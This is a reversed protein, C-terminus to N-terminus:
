DLKKLQELIAANNLPNYRGDEFLVTQGERSLLYRLFERTMPDIPEGPVRNFAAPIIRTLPYSRSILTAKSAEVFPGGDNESLALSKVNANASRQNAVAIGYPDDALAQLIQLDSDYITGDPRKIHAYEHMANNFRHSGKFITDSLFFWFDNDFSWGYLHIPKDAWEGTLGLDGWVRFNKPAGRLHESGFIADIQKLTMKSIPNDKHVFFMQAFDFNRTDLSGTAIEVSAVPYQKVKQYAAAEFPFIEEGMIAVDGKGTYLAGIASATGYMRYDFTVGPQFESFEKEWRRVIVGMFDTGPSGHGWLRLTGSVMKEPKYPPLKALEEAESSRAPTRALGACLALLVLLGRIVRRYM